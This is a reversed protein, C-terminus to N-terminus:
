GCAVRFCLTFDPPPQISSAGGPRPHAQAAHWARHAVLHQREAPSSPSDAPSAGRCGRSFSSRPFPRTITVNTRPLTLFYNYFFVINIDMDVSNDRASPVLAVGEESYMGTRKVMSWSASGYRPSGRGTVSPSGSEAGTLLIGEYRSPTLDGTTM